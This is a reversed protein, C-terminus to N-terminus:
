GDEVVVLNPCLYHKRTHPSYIVCMQKCETDQAMKQAHTLKCDLNMIDYGLRGRKVVANVRCMVGIM